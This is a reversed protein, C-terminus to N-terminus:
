TPFRALAVEASRRVKQSDDQMLERLAPLARRDALQGLALAASERLLPYSDRMAAILHPVARRDGRQGLGQAAIRGVEKDEDTLLPILADVTAVDDIKSLAHAAIWRVDSNADRLAELLLGFTNVGQLQALSQVARSRVQDAEDRLLLGIMELALPRRLVELITAVQQREEKLMMQTMHRYSVMIDAEFRAMDEPSVLTQLAECCAALMERHGQRLHTLLSAELRRRVRVNRRITADPYLLNQLAAQIQSHGTKYQEAYIDYHLLGYRVWQGLVRELTARGAVPDLGFAEPHCLLLLDEIQWAKDPPSFAWVELIHRFLAEDADQGDRSAEVLWKVWTDLETSRRLPPAAERDRGMLPRAAVCFAALILRDPYRLSDEDAAGVLEQWAPRSERPLARHLRRVLVEQDEEALAELRHVSVASRPHCVQRIPALSASTGAWLVMIPLSVAEIAAVFAHWFQEWQRAAAETAVVDTDLQDIVIVLAAGPTVGRHQLAHLLDTWRQLWGPGAAGVGTRHTLRDFITAAGVGWPHDRVFTLLRTLTDAREAVGRSGVASVEQLHAWDASAVFTRFGAEDWDTALAKRMRKTDEYLRGLIAESQRQLHAFLHAACEQELLGDSANVRVTYFQPGRCQILLFETL